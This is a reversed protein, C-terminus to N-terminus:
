AVRAHQADEDSTARRNRRMLHELVLLALVGVWVFRGHSEDAPRGTASDPTARGLAVREAASLIESTRETDPIWAASRAIASARVVAAAETPTPPTAFAIVAASEGNVTAEVASLMHVADRGGRTAAEVVLPDRVVREYVDFAADSQLPRASALLAKRGAYDPFLVAVRRTEAPAGTSIAAARAAEALARDADGALLTISTEDPAPAGPTLTGAVPVAELRIGTDASLDALDARAITTPQFDSVIVLERRMPQQSLWAQAAPVLSAPADSEVIRALTADAALSRAIDRAADLAVPRVQAGSTGLGSGANGAAPAAPVPRGMSASTDVVIARAIQRELDRARVASVWLPQALAVAAAAVISSRLALLGLDTLRERSVPRPTSAPLFRYTPFVVRRAPRRALLHAVVPAAIAVFGLLAWANLLRM